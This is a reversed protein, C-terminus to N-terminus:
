VAEAKATATVALRLDGVSIIAGNIGFVPHDNNNNKHNDSPLAAFPKLAELLEANLAHLRRLETAFAVVDKTQLWIMNEIQDALRLAEPQKM